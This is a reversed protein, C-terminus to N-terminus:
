DSLNSSSPEDDLDNCVDVIDGCDDMPDNGDVLDNSEENYTTSSVRTMVPSTLYPNVPPMNYFLPYYYMPAQPGHPRKGPPHYLYDMGDIRPGRYDTGFPHVNDQVLIKVAVKKAAQGGLSTELLQLQKRKTKYRRNQFWIKVQTETLKLSKAVDAREPGSLYKQQNFRKELEYVQFFKLCITLKSRPIFGYM